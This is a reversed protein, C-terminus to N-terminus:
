AIHIKNINVNYKYKNFLLLHLASPGMQGCRLSDQPPKDLVHLPVYGMKRMNPPKPWMESVHTFSEGYFM